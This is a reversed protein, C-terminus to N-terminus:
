STKRFAKRSYLVYKHDATCDAGHRQLLAMSQSLRLAIGSGCNQKSNGFGIIEVDFDDMSLRWIGIGFVELQIREVFDWSKDTGIAELECLDHGDGDVTREEVGGFERRRFGPHTM